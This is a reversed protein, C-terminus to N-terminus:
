SFFGKTLGVIAGGIAGIAAGIGAGIPGGIAGIAAGIGAGGIAFKCATGGAKEIRDSQNTEDLDCMEKLLDEEQYQDGELNLEFGRQFNNATNAKIFDELSDGLQAEIMQRAMAKLQADNEIAQSYRDQGSIEALLEQYAKMAKDEKGGEIYTCLNSIKNSIVADKSAYSLEYGAKLDYYEYKKELYEPNLLSAGTVGTFTTGTGASFGSNFYSSNQFTSVTM